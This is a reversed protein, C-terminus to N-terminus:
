GKKQNGNLNQHSVFRHKEVSSWVETDVHHDAPCRWKSNGWVYCTWFPVWWWGGRFFLFCGVSCFRVIGRTNGLNLGHTLLKSLSSVQADGQNDKEGVHWRDNLGILIHKLDLLFVLPQWFNLLFLPHIPLVHTIKLATFSGWTITFHHICTVVRKDLDM